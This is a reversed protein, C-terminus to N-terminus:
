NMMHKNMQEVRSIPRELNIDNLQPQKLCAFSDSILNKANKLFGRERAQDIRRKEENSMKLITMIANMLITAEKYNRTEQYLFYKYVVNKLYEFNANKSDADEKNVNIQDTQIQKNSIQKNPVFDQQKLTADQEFPNIEDYDPTPTEYNKQLKNKELEAQKKSQLQQELEQIKTNQKQIEELLKDTQQKLKLQENMLDSSNIKNARDPQQLQLEQVMLQTKLNANDEELQHLTQLQSNKIQIIDNLEIIEKALRTNNVDLDNIQQKLQKIIQQTKQDTNQGQKEIMQRYKEELQFKENNTEKILNTLAKSKDEDKQKLLDLIQNQDFQGLPKQEFKYIEDNLISSIAQFLTERDKAILKYEKYTQVYKESLKDLKKTITKNEKIKDKLQSVLVEKSLDELSQENNEQM